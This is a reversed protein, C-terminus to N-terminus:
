VEHKERSKEEAKKSDNFRDLTSLYGTIRRVRSINASGCRTCQEENLLGSQGCEKCIDVPFNIATYGMDAEGMARLLDEFVEINTDPASALEV